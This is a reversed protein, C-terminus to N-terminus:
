GATGTPGRCQRPRWHGMETHPQAQGHATADRWPEVPVRADTRGAAASRGRCATARCPPLRQVTIRVGGDGAASGSGGGCGEDIIDFGPDGPCQNDQGDCIEEAGPYITSDSDNCDNQNETYGDEDDDIDLPNIETKFSGSIISPELFNGSLDKFGGTEGSLTWSFSTDYPLEGLVDFFITTKDSSWEGVGSIVRHVEFRPLGMAYRSTKGQQMIM